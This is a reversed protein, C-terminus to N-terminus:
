GDYVELDHPVVDRDYVHDAFRVDLLAPKKGRRTRIRECLLELAGPDHTGAAVMEAVAARLVDEGYLDLLRLVRSTTNGVNKNHSVWREYLAAMAPTVALLRDKGMQREANKRNEVLAERHAPDEIVRKKGYSRVHRAVEETGKVVRVIRDDVVLLLTSSAHEPPVSYANNDFRIFATKDVTVPKVMDTSLAKEPLPLLRPQEESLVEFVSKDAITPHPRRHAIDDIFSLLERNGQELSHIPRGALFRERVYRIAREVRGKQNAKRVACLRPQVHYHGATELLMPHFQVVDGYKELVIIKPNDFLWERTTGGFFQAARALSRCLSPSTLDIVFEGWMARSYSLVILFLWLSREAGDISLKGVHAWDVQSQEGILPNLRLFAERKPAPRVKRVHGRVTRVSGKYGRARLMDYLRTARLTPYTELKEAIFAFHEDLLLHKPVPPTVRKPSLLGCLRRVVDEHVMLQRAITGVPWHEAFFLRRIEVSTDQPVTM